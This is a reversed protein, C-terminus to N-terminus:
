DYNRIFATSFFLHIQAGVVTYQRNISAYLSLGIGLDYAIKYTAQVETHFGLTKFRYPFKKPLSDVVVDVMYSGYSYAPGGYVAFNYRADEWRRGLGLCLENLKQDSRFWIKQNSSAHYGVQLGFKNIFHQYAITMNQEITGASRNGTGAGYGLTLYSANERYIRHQYVIRGKGIVMTTDPSEVIKKKKEKVQGFGAFGILFSLPLLIWIKKIM